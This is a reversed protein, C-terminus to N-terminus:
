MVPPLPCLILVFIWNNGLLQFKVCMSPQLSLSPNMSPQSSPTTSPSNDNYVLNIFVDGPMPCALPPVPEVNASADMIFSVFGTGVWTNFTAQAVVFDEQVYIESCIRGGGRNGGLFGGDQDFVEYFQRPRRLDGRVFTQVTVDSTAPSLSDFCIDLAEGAISIECVDSTTTSSCPKTPAQSPALSPVLSLSPASSTSPASSPQLSVSPNVSLSPSMSPTSDAYVLNIYVEGPSPCYFLPIPGTDDSADMIFSVYGTAVWTNFTAQAVVIDTQHYAEDCEGGGNNRVLTNGDQDILDYYQDTSSVDGRVFTQVTVDGTAPSLSDFCIDLQEGSITISVESSTTTSSCPKTPAQSLTVSPALSISPPLSPSTSPVQSPASSISPASSTSPRSSPQLSTSPNVSLSPSMSPTSADNYVLNIFVDGTFLCIAPDIPEVLGSADMIFSVFGTAVWSNFIAQPVVFDTQDYAEDCYGGGRNRGLSFGDQNIVDYFQLPFPLFGRVFTQVIVDGTAPPLSDFCIDLEEGAETLICVNSLTTSSCLKTPAQSPSLSLSPLASPASSPNSSPGASPMLSPLASPMSSPSLSPLASPASSPNSSPGASPQLSPLSSPASSPNSSPGDSPQLSPLASPASSPNSSPGDSPQLSPLASPASSPNSSPGDSPAPNAALVDSPQVSPLASQMSSPSLSPLASPASSPNSSPGTSPMLSPLASPMSSPSLSPLASPASSPARSPAASPQLSPLASGSISPPLSPQGSPIASPIASPVASPTNSPTRSPADSPQASPMASPMSSPSSSPLDSPLSSPPTSPSNSPQVSLSPVYSPLISPKSSPQASTSPAATSTPLMSVSPSISPRASTSPASSISPLNSVSPSSSPSTSPSITPQNSGNLPSTIGYGIGFGGGVGGGLTFELSYLGNLNSVLASGIGAGVVTDIDTVVSGGVIDQTTGTFAFGLLGSVEAGAGLEAGFTGRIFGTPKTNDGLASFVSMALDLLVSLEIHLGMYVVTGGTSPAKPICDNAAEQLSALQPPPQANFADLFRLCTASQQFEEPNQADLAADVLDSEDINARTFISEKWVDLDLRFSSVVQELCARDPFCRKRLVSFDNSCTLGEECTRLRGCRQGVGPQESDFPGENQDELTNNGSDSSINTAQAAVEDVEERSIVHYQASVVNHALLCLLVLIHCKWCM